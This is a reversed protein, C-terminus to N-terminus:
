ELFHYLFLCLMNELRYIDNIMIVHVHLLMYMYMNPINHQLLVAYIIGM